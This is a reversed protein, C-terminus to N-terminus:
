KETQYMAPLEDGFLILPDNKFAIFDDAAPHGPYPAYCHEANGNRWVLVFAIKAALSDKKLPKLIRDTFWNVEKVGALGTETLAPIKNKAAALKVLTQLSGVFLSDQQARTIDRLYDSSRGVDWYNDVGLIDVYEDGPYGYLFCTDQDIGPTRSRDPSIAYLLNHINMSDRLYCLTFRWLAIYDEEACNGKGWWFWDGNHEHYPRFIIPIPKNNEDNLMRFFDGAKSIRELWLAHLDGGPLLKKVVPAVDWAGGATIPNKEHWSITIVGGRAYGQKIWRIMKNFSVGDINVTDMVHGIDFGYLAPYSGTVDRVDCATDGSNGHVGYCLADQQGFLIGIGSLKKLNHYLAKTEETARTDVPEGPIWATQDNAKPKCGLVLLHFTVLYLYLLARKM